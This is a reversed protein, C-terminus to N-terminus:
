MLCYEYVNMGPDNITVTALNNTLAVMGASPNMLGVTFTEAGEVTADPLLLYSVCQPIAPTSGM